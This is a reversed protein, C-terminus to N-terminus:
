FAAFKRSLLVCALRAPEHPAFHEEFLMAPPDAVDRDVPLLGVRRSPPQRHLVQGKAADFAVKAWDWHVGILEAAAPM